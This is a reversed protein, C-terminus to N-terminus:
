AMPRQRSAGTALQAGRVHLLGPVLRYEEVVGVALDRDMAHIGTAAVVTGPLEQGDHRPFEEPLGAGGLVISGAATNRRDSVAPRWTASSSVSCCPSCRSM